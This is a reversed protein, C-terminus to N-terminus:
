LTCVLSSCKSMSLSTRQKDMNNLPARLDQSHTSAYLRVSYLHVSTHKIVQPCTQPVFRGPVGKSFEAGWCQIWLCSFVKWFWPKQISKATLSTPLCFRGCPQGVVHRKTVHLPLVHFICWLVWALCRSPPEACSRVKCSSSFSLGRGASHHPCTRTMFINSTFTFGGFLCYNIKWGAPCHLENIQILKTRHIQM